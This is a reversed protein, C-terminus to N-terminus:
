FSFLRRYAIEGPVASLGLLSRRRCSAVLLFSLLPLLLLLLVPADRFFLDLFFFFFISLTLGWSSKEIQTERERKGSRPAGRPGACLVSRAPLAGGHGTSPSFRVAFSFSSPERSRGNNSRRGLITIKKEVKRFFQPFFFSFSVTAPWSM